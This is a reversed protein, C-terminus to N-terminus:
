IEVKFKLSRKKCPFSLKLICLSKLSEEMIDFIFLCPDSLLLRNSWRGVSSSIQSSGLIQWLFVLCQHYTSPFFFIVTFKLQKHSYSQKSKILGNQYKVLINKHSQRCAVNMQILEIMRNTKMKCVSIALWSGLILATHSLPTCIISLPSNALVHLSYCDVTEKKCTFDNGHVQREAGYM